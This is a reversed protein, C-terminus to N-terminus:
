RIRDYSRLLLIDKRIGRIALFLLIVSLVPFLVPIAYFISATFHAKVKNLLFFLMGYFGLLLMINFICLRIQLVRNKFKIITVFAVLISVAVIILLHYTLFLYGSEGILRVGIVDFRLLNEQFDKLEAFPVFFM